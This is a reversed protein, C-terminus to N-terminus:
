QKPTIGGWQDITGGLETVKPGDLVNYRPDESWGCPCGWPGYIIGVGVDCDERWAEEGCNECKM